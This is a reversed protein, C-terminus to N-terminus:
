TKRQAAKVFQRVRARDKCFRVSRGQADVQNTATCSDVGAPVVTAIATHVNEPSLGGALIVPIAAQRVLARAVQWDCTEGTIGVFGNVPQDVPADMSSLLLTDTLFFDSLAEFKEALMLTPVSATMGPRGIPLSRMIKVAPYESRIVKQNAMLHRIADHDSIDSPLMECFHIIDPRYYDLVRRIADLESFLPILSSTRGASHVLRIAERIEPDKWDTASLVVSGIHDVGEEIVM